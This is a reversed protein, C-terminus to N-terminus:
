IMQGHDDQTPGATLPTLQVGRRLMAQLLAEAMDEPAPKDASPQGLSHIIEGQRDTAVAGYSLFTTLVGEHGLNQSWAKFQEPTRCVQQGLQVLTSRLSHPNFYPLGAAEFAQKFIARIPAATEWAKRELGVAQFHLREGPEVRTAPFLPDDNGWLLDERLHRVWEAVIARIDDGVPFFYTMFSKSFKTKVVRADQFVCGAALDVHGLRISALATDRAGTLLAFAVLARNRREIDTNAPMRQIVHKVQELTPVPRPRRATAIRSDKESLNFYEADSYDLKSRYRPQLALWQFFRKLHALTAYQTAASLVEGTAESTREALRRKFAVAQESRFSRFDRYRTDVEFRAIAQAVADVSAESQRKAEKLFVFYQRKIRENDPHHTPM